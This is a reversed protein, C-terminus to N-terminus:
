MPPRDEGSLDRGLDPEITLFNEVDEVEPVQRVLAEVWKRDDRSEVYGHLTVRGDHISVDISEASITPDDNLREEIKEQLEHDALQSM